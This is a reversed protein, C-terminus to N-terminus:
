IGFSSTSDVNDLAVETLVRDKRPGAIIVDESNMATMNGDDQSFLSEDQMESVRVEEECANSDEVIPLCGDDDTVVKSLEEGQCSAANNHEEMSVQEDKVDNLAEEMVVDKSTLTMAESAETHVDFSMDDSQLVEIKVAPMKTSVSAEDDRPLRLFDNKVLYHVVQLMKQQEVHVDKALLKRLLSKQEGRWQQETAREKLAKKSRDRQQSLLATDHSFPCHMGKACSSKHMMTRCGFMSRDHSYKCVADSFRCRGRSFWKCLMSKRQKKVPPEQVGSTGHHLAASDPVAVNTTANTIVNQAKAEEDEEIEGEELDVDSAISLKRKGTVEATAVSSKPQRSMAFWRKRREERWKTIDEASNGVLVMFKQGEVEIEKLGQGSYQGHTTEYHAAVVRKSASYECDSCTVHTAMHADYQSAAVFSKVCPECKWTRQDPQPPPPPPQAYADNSYPQPNPPLPPAPGDPLPPQGRPENKAVFAPTVESQSGGYRSPDQPQAGTDLARQQDPGTGAGYSKQLSDEQGAFLPCYQKWHGPQNCNHCVYSFPPAGQQKRQQRDHKDQRRDQYRSNQDRQYQHQDRLPLVQQVHAPPGNVFQQTHQPPVQQWQHNQQSSYNWDHQPVRPLPIQQQHHQHYMPPSPQNSEQYSDQVPGSIDEKLPISAVFHHRVQGAEAYPDSVPQLPPITMSISPTGAYRSKEDQYQLPIPQQYLPVSPIQQYQQQYIPLLPQTEFSTNMYLSSTGTTYGRNKEDTYGQPQFHVQQYQDQSLQYQQVNQQLPYMSPYELQSPYGQQHLPYMEGYQQEQLPVYGETYGQEERRRQQQQLGVNNSGGSGRGSGRGRGRGGRGRGGRRGGRGGRFHGGREM